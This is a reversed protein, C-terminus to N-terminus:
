RLLKIHNSYGFGQKHLAIGPVGRPFNQSVNHAYRINIKMHADDEVLTIKPKSIKFWGLQNPLIIVFFFFTFPLEYM